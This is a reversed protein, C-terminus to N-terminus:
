SICWALVIAITTVVVGFVCGGAATRRDRDSLLYTGDSRRKYTMKLIIGMGVNLILGALPIAVVKSSISANNPWLLAVIGRVAVSLIGVSIAVVVIKTYETSKSTM